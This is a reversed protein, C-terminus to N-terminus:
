LFLDSRNSFYEFVFIKVRSLIELLHGNEEKGELIFEIKILFFFKFRKQYEMIPFFVFCVSINKYDSVM